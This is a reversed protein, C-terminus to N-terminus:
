RLEESRTVSGEIVSPRGASKDSESAASSARSLWLRLYHRRQQPDRHDEFATRNHLIWHNNMFVMQGPHLDFEVRFDQRDLLEKMVELSKVQAATLPQAAKEHGVEIYYHLYRMTLERGDWGLVPFKSFPLEGATFQGRRDVYFPEYLTELIQAHKALLENHLAYASVLQSRGGSKATQLCLLGIYDPIEHGFSADTHFSSEANTVSFRSGDAVNYGTDRVDYLLTGEINQPFPQGLCQGVLWYLLNPTIPNAQGADISVREIVVFGPGSELSDLVPQIIRHCARLQAEDLYFETVPESSTGRRQRNAEEVIALFDDPLRYVWPRQSEFSDARWTRKNRVMEVLQGHHPM